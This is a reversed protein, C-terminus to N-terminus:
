GNWQLCQKWVDHFLDAPHENLDIESIDYNENWELMPVPEGIDPNDGYCLAVISLLQMQINDRLENILPNGFVENNRNVPKYQTFGECGASTLLTNEMQILRKVNEIRDLIDQERRLRSKQEINAM